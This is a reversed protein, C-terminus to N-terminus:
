EALRAVAEVNQGDPDDVFAAYYNPAYNPRPGPAGNDPGGAAVAAKHFVDVAARDNARFALRIPTAAPGFSGIWLHGSPGGIWPSDKGRAYSRYASRLSRPSM